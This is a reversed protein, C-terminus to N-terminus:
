PNNEILEQETCDWGEQEHPCKVHYMITGDLLTKLDIITADFVDKKFPARVTQEKSFMYTQETSRRTSPTYTRSYTDGAEDEVSSKNRRKSARTPITATSQSPAKRKNSAAAGNKNKAQSNSNSITGDELGEVTEHVWNKCWELDAPDMTFHIRDTDAHLTVTRLINKIPCLQINDKIMLNPICQFKSATTITEGEQPKATLWTVVVFMNDTLETMKIKCFRLRKMTNGVKELFRQVVGVYYRVGHPVGPCDMFLATIVCGAYICMDELEEETMSNSAVAASDKTSGVTSSSMVRRLRDKSTTNWAINHNINAVVKRVDHKEATDPDDEPTNYVHYEYRLKKGEPSSPENEVKEEEKRETDGLINEIASSVRELEDWQTEDGEEDGEEDSEVVGEYSGLGPPISDTVIRNLEEDIVTEHSSLSEINAFIEEYKFISNPDAVFSDRLKGSPTSAVLNQGMDKITVVCENVGQQIYDGIMNDNFKSLLDKQHEDWGEAIEDDILLLREKDIAGSRTFRNLNDMGYKNEAFIKALANNVALIAQQFTFTRRGTIMNYGGLSAFLDECSQSGRWSLNQFCLSESIGLDRMIRIYNVLGICCNVSDRLTEKTIFHTKMNMGSGKNVKIDEHWYCLFSLTYGINVLVQSLPIRVGAMAMRFRYKVNLWYYLGKHISFDPHDKLFKQVSLRIIRQCCNYNM